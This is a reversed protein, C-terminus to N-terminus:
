TTMSQMMDHMALMVPMPQMLKLDGGAPDRM